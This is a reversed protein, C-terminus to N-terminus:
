RSGRRCRSTCRTTSRRSRGRVRRRRPVLRPTRRARDPSSRAAAVALGAVTARRRGRGGDRVDLDRRDRVRDAAHGPHGPARDPLLVPDLRRRAARAVRAPSQGAARADVVDGDARAGRLLHVAAPDRDDDARRAGDRRLLRRRRRARGGEDGRGDDLIHAGAELPLGENQWDTHVWDHDQLM